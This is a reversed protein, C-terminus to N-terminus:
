ASQGKAEINETQTNPASDASIRGRIKEVDAMISDINALAKNSMKAKCKPCIADQYVLICKRNINDLLYSIDNDNPM